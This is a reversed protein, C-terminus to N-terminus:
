LTEGLFPIPWQIEKGYTVQFRSDSVLGLENGRPLIRGIVETM